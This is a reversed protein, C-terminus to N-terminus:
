LCSCSHSKHLLFYKASFSALFHRSLLSFSQTLFSSKMEVKLAHAHLTEGREGKRAFKREVEQLKRELLRERESEREEFHV